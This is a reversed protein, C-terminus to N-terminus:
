GARSGPEKRRVTSSNQLSEGLEGDLVWVDHVWDRRFKEFSQRTRVPNEFTQFVILATALGDGCTQNSHGSRAQDPSADHASGRGVVVAGFEFEIVQYRVGPVPSGETVVIGEHPFQYAELVREVVAQGSQM